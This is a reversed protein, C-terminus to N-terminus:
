SSEILADRRARRKALFTDIIEKDNADHLDPTGDPDVDGTYDHDPHTHGRLRLERMIANVIGYRKHPLAARRWQEVAGCSECPNLMVNDAIVPGLEGGGPVGLTLSSLQITRITRCGTCTVEVTGATLDYDTIPM